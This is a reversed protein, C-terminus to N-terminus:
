RINVECSSKYYGDDSLAYIIVTGSKVATVLGNEDVTAIANNNSTWTLKTYTVDTPRFIAEIQLTEGVVLNSSTPSLTLSTAKIVTGWYELKFNDFICWNSYTHTDNKLGIDVNGGDTTFEMQNWYADEAFATAASEM